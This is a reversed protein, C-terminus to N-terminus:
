DEDDARAMEEEMWRRIKKEDGLLDPSLLDKELNGPKLAVIWCNYPDKNIRRPDKVVAPNVAVVKGSVPSYLKSVFKASEFNGLSRGQRVEGKADISIYNLHGANETLFSDMGVKVLGGRELRVWVHAGKRVYYRRDLPFRLNGVKVARAVNKGGNM